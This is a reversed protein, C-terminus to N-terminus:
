LFLQFFTESIAGQKCIETIPLFYFLYISIIIRVKKRLALENIYPIGM